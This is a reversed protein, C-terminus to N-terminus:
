NELYIIASKGGKIGKIQYFNSEQNFSGLPTMVNLENDYITTIRSFGYKGKFTIRQVCNRDLHKILSSKDNNFKNKWNLYSKLHYEFFSFTKENEDLHENLQLRTDKLKEIIEAANENEPVLVNFLNLLFLQSIDQESNSWSVSNFLVLVRYLLRKKYVDFKISEDTDLNAEADRLLLLMLSVTNILYGKISDVCLGKNDFVPNMDFFNHNKKISPTEDIDILSLKSYKSLHENIMEAQLADINYLMENEALKVKWKSREIISKKEKEFPVLDETKKFKIKFQSQEETFTHNCKMIILHLGILISKLDDLIDPNNFPKIILLSELKESHKEELYNYIKKLTNSLKSKIAKGDQFSLKIKGKNGLKNENVGADRSEEITREDSDSFDEATPTGFTMRDLFEELLTLHSNDRKSSRAIVEENKNFETEDVTNYIKNDDKREKGAVPASHSRDYRITNTDFRAYELLENLDNDLLKDSNILDLFRISKEDPNTKLIAQHFHLFALNSQRKGEENEIHIKYAGKVAEESLNISFYDDNVDSNIVQRYSLDNRKSVVATHTNSLKKFNLGYVKLTTFDVETHKINFILSEVTGTTEEVKQPIYENLNFDGVLPLEIKMEALWDRKTDTEILLCMEANKTLQSSSGLAEITANASGILLFTKTKFKFQIIKAHLRPSQHRSISEIYQWDYFQVTKNTNFQYPITGFRSDVVIQIKEPKLDQKFQTIVQGNKNFYPSIIVLSELTENPLKQLVQQYISTDRFSSILSIRQDKSKFESAQIDNELLEKLWPSSSLIWEWMKTNVGYCYKEFPILYQYVAKFLPTAKSETKYTHFAGWVEDNSSLGSNTLNGSGIALFGHNKGIAMIIKPHFAGHLQIPNISYSTNTRYNGDLDKLQQQFIRADVFININIIGAQRLKPLVRQEFFLFDFSFCTIICSHYKNKDAGLLDLVNYRDIM